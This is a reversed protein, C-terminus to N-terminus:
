RWWNLPEGTVTDYVNSYQWVAGQYRELAGAFVSEIESFGMGIPLTFVILGAKVGDMSGGFADIEETIEKAVDTTFEYDDANEKGLYFHVCVNGGRSVINFAGTEDNLIQVVDGSAVKIAYLPSRILEWKNEGLARAPVNEVGSPAADIVAIKVHQHKM